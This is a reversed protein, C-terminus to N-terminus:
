KWWAGGFRVLWFLTSNFWCYVMLVTFLLGWGIVWCLALWEAWDILWKQRATFHRKKM